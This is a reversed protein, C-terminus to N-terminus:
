IKAPLKVCFLTVNYVSSFFVFVLYLWFFTSFFHILSILFTIFQIIQVVVNLIFNIHRWILIFLTNVPIIFIPKNFIVGVTSGMSPFVFLTIDDFRMSVKLHLIMLFHFMCMYFNFNVLQINSNFSGESVCFYTNTMSRIKVLKEASCGPSM